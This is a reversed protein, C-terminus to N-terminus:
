LNGGIGAVMATSVINMFLLEGSLLRWYYKETVTSRIQSLITGAPQKGVQPWLNYSVTSTQQQNAFYKIVRIFVFMCFLCSCSELIQFTRM